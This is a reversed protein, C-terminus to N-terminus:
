PRVEETAAAAPTSEAPAPASEAPAASAEAAAARASAEPAVESTAPTEALSQQLAARARQELYAQLANLAPALDPLAVAVPQAQLEGLRAYLAQNHADELGFFQQVLERAQELARAYVPADAHLAAWQAQELALRLALRLQERAQGALLPAVEDSATFELRVFGSLQQWWAQWGDRNAPAAPAATPQFVPLRSDLGAAQEGLAALQLFLGTRDIVPLRRLAELSRALQERAAFASPDDHDRLIQDSAQVLARASNVDQLASLRLSALRLLYEAEALRWEQRSAGLVQDIRVSLTQQQTQLDALLRQQESLVEAGPLAALRANLAQASQASRQTQETLRTELSQLQAVLQPDTPKQLQSVSWGGLLLAGGALLLALLSLRSGGRPAPAPAAPAASPTPTAPEAPPLQEPQSAADTM